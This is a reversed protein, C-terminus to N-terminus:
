LGVKAAQLATEQRVIAIGASRCDRSTLGVSGRTQVLHQGLGEFSELGMDDLIVFARPERHEVLDDALWRRVEAGRQILGGFGEGGAKSTMGIVRAPHQLGKAALMVRFDQLEFLFRWSSSIVIECNFSEALADLRVVKDSDLAETELPRKGWTAPSNLVGDMDLFIVPKLM